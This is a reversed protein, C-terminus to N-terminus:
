APGCDRLIKEIAEWIYLSPNERYYNFTKYQQLIYGCEQNRQMIKKSREIADKVNDLSLKGLVRKFNAEHKYQDFNEFEENYASNIYTIYQRRHSLLGNCDIKHLVLWLEFAFNSYGNFYKIQKGLLQAQKMRDLTMKFQETHVDDNSEYDFVHTIDTKRTVILSKARKVPDKQIPCDLSVTYNATPETNIKHQLWQLYWRETEGEVTFYYKRNEKMQAM